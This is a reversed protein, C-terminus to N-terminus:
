ITQKQSDAKGRTEFRTKVGLEVIADKPLATYGSRLFLRTPASRPVIRRQQRCFMYVLITRKGSFKGIKRM